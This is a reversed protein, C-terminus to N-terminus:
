CQTHQLFFPFSDYGINIDCKENQLIGFCEGFSMHFHSKGKSFYPCCPHFVGVREVDFVLVAACCSLLFPSVPLHLDFHLIM